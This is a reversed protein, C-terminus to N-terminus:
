LMHMSSYLSQITDYPIKNWEDVILNWLDEINAPNGISVNLGSRLLYRKITSRSMNPYSIPDQVLELLSLFPFKKTTNCLNRQGRVSLLPPRGSKRKNAISGTELFMKWIKRVITRCLKLDRAVKKLNRQDQMKVIVAHSM